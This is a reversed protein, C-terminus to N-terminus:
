CVSLVSLFMRFWRHCRTRSSKGTDLVSGVKVGSSSLMMSPPPSSAYHHSMGSHLVHPSAVYSTARSSSASPHCLAEFSSTPHHYSSSSGQASTGYSGATPGHSHSSHLPHPDDSALRGQTDHSFKCKLGMRCHGAAYFKCSKHNPIYMAPSPGLSASGEGSRRSPPHSPTPHYSSHSPHAYSSSTGSSSPPYHMMPPDAYHSEQGQSSPFGQYEQPPSSSTGMTEWSGFSTAYGPCSSSLYPHSNMMGQSSSSPTPMMHIVNGYNSPSSPDHMPVMTINPPRSTSPHRCSSSPHRCSSSPHRCSSSPHPGGQPPSSSSTGSGRSRGQGQPHSAYPSSGLTTQVQPSTSSPHKYIM